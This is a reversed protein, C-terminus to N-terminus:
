PNIREQRASIREAVSDPDIWWSGDIKEARLKGSWILTYVYALNVKLEISVQRPTLKDQVKDEGMKLCTPAADRASCGDPDGGAELNLTWLGGPFHITRM